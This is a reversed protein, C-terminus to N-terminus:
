EDSLYPKISMRDRLGRRGPQKGFVQALPDPNNIDPCGTEPIVTEPVDNDPTSNDESCPLPSEAGNATTHDGDEESIQSGQSSMTVTLSDSKAVDCCQDVSVNEELHVEGEGTQMLWKSTRVDSNELEDPIDPCVDSGQTASDCESHESEVDVDRDCPLFSVSLLLNRHVVKERGTLCDKVRYVNLEPKVGIVEYPTSEWKDAVKRKGPVGRNAILVRDGVVLPSGKVKRNYLKAHRTQEKLCNRQVIQAAEQLDKKLHSVFDSHSVVADNALAHQFVIDVPLRPIRGFLLYFPAFGTTEHETCYLLLHAAAANTAM